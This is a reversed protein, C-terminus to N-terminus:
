RPQAERGDFDGQAIARRVRTRCRGFAVACSLM